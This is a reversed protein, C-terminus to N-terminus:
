GILETDSRRRGAGAAATTSPSPQVPSLRRSIVNYQPVKLGNEERYTFSFSLPCCLCNTRRSNPLIVFSQFPKWGASPITNAAATLHSGQVQQCCIAADAETSTHCHQMPHSSDRYSAM